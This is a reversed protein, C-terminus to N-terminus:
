SVAIFSATKFLSETAVFRGEVDSSSIIFLNPQIFPQTEYVPPEDSLLRCKNRAVGDRTILRKLQLWRQLIHNKFHENNEVL